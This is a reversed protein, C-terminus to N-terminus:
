RETFIFELVKGKQMQLLLQFYMEINTFKQRKIDPFVKDKKHKVNRGKEKRTLYM